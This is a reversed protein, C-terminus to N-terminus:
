MRRMLMNTLEEIIKLLRKEDDPTAQVSGRKRGETFYWSVRGVEERPAYEPRKALEYLRKLEIELVAIKKTQFEAQRENEANRREAHARALAAKTDRIADLYDEVYEQAVYITKKLMRESEDYIVVRCRYDRGQALRLNAIRFERTRPVEILIRGKQVAHKIQQRALDRRLREDDPMEFQVREFPSQIVIDFFRSRDFAGRIIVPFLKIRTFNLIDDVINFNRWAVNNHNRVFQRFDEFSALTPYSAAEDPTIPRPDQQSGAVAILCAHANFPLPNEAELWAVVNSVTLVGPNVTMPDTTGIYNWSNPTLLTAPEAWYVDATMIGPQTGRNNARVYIYNDQGLEATSGLTNINETGSGPGYDATPDASPTPQMIIDPSGSVTGTTPESGDDTVKDRLYIDVHQFNTLSCAAVTIFNTMMGRTAHKTIHCHALWRGLVGNPSQVNDEGIYMRDDVLFRYTVRHRAPVYISDVYEVFDWDYLTVYGGGTDLEIRIPQFSFGHIHWPHDASATKTEITWEVVDGATVYRTNDPTPQFPGTPMWFVQEGDLSPGGGGILEPSYNTVLPGSPVVVDNADLQAKTCATFSTVAADDSLDDLGTSSPAAPNTLLQTAANINSTLKFTDDTTTSVAFRAIEMNVPDEDATTPGNQVSFGNVRLAVHAWGPQVAFAVMIRASTPLLFEGPLLESGPQVAGPGAGLGDAGGGLERGRVGRIRWQGFVGGGARAQDLLGGQGGIWFLDSSVQWDAPTPSVETTFALQIKYFRHLGTNLIQFAFSEGENAVIPGATARQGKPWYQQFNGPADNFPTNHIGNVLLVDGFNEPGPAVLNISRIYVPTTSPVSALPVHPDPVPDTVRGSQFSVDSLCIHFTRDAHPIIKATRLENTAPDEVIIPGYCGLHEQLLGDFHPHYWFVGPRKLIFKYVFQQRSAIPKQTVPTGDHANALEIGHWHVIAGTKLGEVFDGLPDAIRNQVTVHVEDGVMGRVEPGPIFPEWAGSPDGEPVAVGSADVYQHYCLVKQLGVGTGFDWDAPQIRFTYELVAM